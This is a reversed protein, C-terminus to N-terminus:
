GGGGTVVGSRSKAASARRQAPLRCEQAARSPLTGHAPGRPYRRLPREGQETRDSRRRLVALVYVQEGADVPGRPILVFDVIVRHDFIVPLPELRPRFSMM